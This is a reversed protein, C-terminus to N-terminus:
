KIKMNKADIKLKFVIKKLTNAEFFVIRNM